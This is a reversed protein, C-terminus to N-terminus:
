WYEAWYPLPMEADITTVGPASCLDLKCVRWICTDVYVYMSCVYKFVFMTVCMLMGYIHVPPREAEITTVGSTSRLDLETCM